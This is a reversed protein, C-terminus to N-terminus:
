IGSATLSDIIRQMAASMSPHSVEFHLVADSLQDRLDAHDTPTPDPNSLFENVQGHLEDATDHGEAAASALDDSLGELNDRPDEAM